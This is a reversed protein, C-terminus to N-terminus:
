ITKERIRHYIKECLLELFAKGMDADACASDGLIGNESLGKMGNKLLKEAAEERGTGMYGCVARNMDVSEPVLYLMISTEFCCAHGGCSGVPLRFMRESEECVDMFDQLSMVCSVAAGPYRADLEGALEEMMAFNGGHSSGLLIKKFGQKVYADVYDEVIGRFIEPRLTLSGPFAMHHGSLGPRIVPAVLANGLRKAVEGYAARGLVYDTNEAMHPGHQEQSAACILVTDAGQEKADQIEQWSMEEMFVKKM